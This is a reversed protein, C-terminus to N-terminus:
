DHPIQPPCLPAPAPKRRTSQNGRGIKMGGIEGCDGEGIMPPQYLLGTTATTGLIGCCLNILNILPWQQSKVLMPGNWIRKFTRSWQTFPMYEFKHSLEQKNWPHKFSITAYKSLACVTSGSFCGNSPLARVCCYIFQWSVLHSPTCGNSHLSQTLV